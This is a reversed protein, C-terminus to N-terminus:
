SSAIRLILDSCPGEAKPHNDDDCLAVPKALRKGRLLLSSSRIHPEAAGGNVHDHHRFVDKSQHREAWGKM